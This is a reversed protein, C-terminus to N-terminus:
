VEKGITLVAAAGRHFAGTRPHLARARGGNRDLGAQARATPSSAQRSAVAVMLIALETPLAM